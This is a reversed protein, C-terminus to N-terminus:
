DVGLEGWTSDRSFERIKLQDLLMARVIADVAERSGPMPPDGPKEHSLVFRTLDGLTTLGEGFEIALPRTLRFLLWATAIVAAIGLFFAPWRGLWTGLNVFVCGGIFFAIASLLMALWSARRLRPWSSLDFAQRLHAWIERRRKRPVVAELRSSPRAARRAAGLREILANRVSYFTVQTLCPGDGRRAGIRRCVYDIVKAPGTLEAFDEDPIKFQFRDEIDMVLEAFDLSM